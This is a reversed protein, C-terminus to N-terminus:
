DLGRHVGDPIVEPSAKRDVRNTCESIRSYWEQNIMLLERKEDAAKGRTRPQRFLELLPKLIEPKLKALRVVHM